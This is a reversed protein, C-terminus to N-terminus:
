SQRHKVGSLESITIGFAIAVTQPRPFRAVSQGSESHRARAVHNCATNGSGGHQAEGGLKGKEAASREASKRVASAKPATKLGTSPRPKRGRRLLVRHRGNSFARASSIRSAQQGWISAACLRGSHATWDDFPAARSAGLPQPGAGGGGGARGGQAARARAGRTYASASVPFKRSGPARSPRM